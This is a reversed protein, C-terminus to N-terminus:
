PFLSMYIPIFGFGVGVVVSFVIGLAKITPMYKPHNAGITQFASWFGHSIHIAAIAMALVYFILHGPKALTTAVIEYITTGSRDAFHFDVLHIMVFISLLIGTYPMTSSGLTRGGARHNVSYRVPRARLNQYFLTAGTLVHVIAFSLLGLELVTLLPGLTHLREAYGNFAAPGVYLLLNGILHMILFTSFALGTLAMLLKKGVSSFMFKLPWLMTGM